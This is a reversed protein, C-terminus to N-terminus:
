FSVGAAALVEVIPNVFTIGGISCTGSGGSILGVAKSGSIVPGASDGPETCISTRILGTVIEGNGYNVTMNLAQVTGCHVGTTSVPACVQQGLSPNVAGTILTGGVTSPHPIAPNDYRVLGWDSGPYQSTVTPGIFTSASFNPSTYWDPFGATCHGATIFYYSTANHVNFSVICSIGSSAFARDGGALNPRFAGAVRQVTVRDGLRDTVRHVKALGAPRVTPDVLVVVRDHPVDVGWATGAVNVSNRIAREARDLEASSHRVVKTVAGAARIASLEDPSVSDTVTVVTKRLATDYYHGATQSDDLRPAAVVAGQSAPGSTSDGAAAASARPVALSLAVLIGAVTATTARRRSANRISRFRRVKVRVGKLVVHIDPAAAGPFRREGPWWGAKPPRAPRVVGIPIASKGVFRYTPQTPSPVDLGPEASFVRSM